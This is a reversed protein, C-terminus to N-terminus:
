FWENEPLNAWSVAENCPLFYMASWAQSAMSTVTTDWQCTAHLLSKFHLMHTVTIWHFSPNLGTNASDLRKLESAAIESISVRNQINPCTPSLRNIPTGLASAAACATQAPTLSFLGRHRYRRAYPTILICPNSWIVELPEWGVEIM